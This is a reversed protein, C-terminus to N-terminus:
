TQQLRTYLGAFTEYWGDPSSVKLWTRRAHQVLKGIMLVVGQIVTRLRRHTAPKLGLNNTVVLDGGMIRLMNYVLVGLQLIL